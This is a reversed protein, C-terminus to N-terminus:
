HKTYKEYWEGTYFKNIIIKAIMLFKPKLGKIKAKVAKITHKKMCNISHSSCILDIQVFGQPNLWISTSINGECDWKIGPPM